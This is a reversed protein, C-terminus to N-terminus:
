LRLYNINHFPINPLQDPVQSQLLENLLYGKFRYVDWYGFNGFIRDACSKVCCLLGLGICMYVCM